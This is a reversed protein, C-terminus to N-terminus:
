SVTEETYLSEIFWRAFSAWAMFEALPGMSSLESLRPAVGCFMAFVVLVV